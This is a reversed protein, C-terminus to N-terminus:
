DDCSDPITRTHTWWLQGTNNTHTNCVRNHQRQWKHIIRNVKNLSSTL